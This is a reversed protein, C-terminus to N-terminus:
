QCVDVRHARRLIASFLQGPGTPPFTSLGLLAHHAARFRSRGVASTLFPTVPLRPISSQSSTSEADVLSVPVALQAVEDFDHDETALWFFVTAPRGARELERKMKVLSAIKALTYLPGGAFGVQQGAVLTVASGSAWAKVQPEVSLGWRRNSEHPTRETHLAPQGAPKLM